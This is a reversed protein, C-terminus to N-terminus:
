CIEGRNKLINGFVLDREEEIKFCWSIYHNESFHFQMYYLRDHDYKRIFNCCDLNIPYNYYKFDYGNDIKVEEQHPLIWNSM